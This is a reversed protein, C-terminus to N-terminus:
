NINWLLIYNRHCLELDFICKVGMLNWCLELMYTITQSNAHLALMLFDLAFIQM